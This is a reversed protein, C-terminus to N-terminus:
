IHILSLSLSALTNADPSFAVAQIGGGAALPAGRQSHGDVNWLRITDPEASALMRGDSSVAISAIQSATQRIPAGLRKGSDVDWLTITTPHPVHNFPTREAAVALTRAGFGMSSVQGDTAIPAGLRLRARVDWVQM